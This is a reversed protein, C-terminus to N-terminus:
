KRESEHILKQTKMLYNIMLLETNMSVQHMNKITELFLFYERLTNKQTLIKLKKQIFLKTLYTYSNSGLLAEANFILLAYFIRETISFLDKFFINNFHSVSSSEKSVKNISKKSFLNRLDLLFCDIEQPNESSVLLIKEILILSYLSKLVSGNLVVGNEIPIEYEGCANILEECIESLSKARLTQIFDSQQSKSLVSFNAGDNHTFLMETSFKSLWVIEDCYHTELDILPKSPINIKFLRSKITSLLAHYSTSSCIFLTDNGPEEIMKLLSNQAFTNAREIKKILAYKHKLHEKKLTSFRILERIEDIRISDSNSDIEFFDNSNFIESYKKNEYSSLFVKILGDVLTKDEGVLCIAPIHFSNALSYLHNIQDTYREKLIDEFSEINIM